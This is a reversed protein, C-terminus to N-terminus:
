KEKRADLEEKLRNLYKPQNDQNKKNWEMGGM